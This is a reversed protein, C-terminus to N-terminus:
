KKGAPSGCTLSPQPPTFVKAEGQPPAGNPHTVQILAVADACQFVHCRAPKCFLVLMERGDEMPPPPTSMAMRFRVTGQGGLLGGFFLRPTDIKENGCLGGCDETPLVYRPYFLFGWGGFVEHKKLAQQV